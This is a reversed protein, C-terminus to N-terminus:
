QPRERLLQAVFSLTESNMLAGYEAIVAEITTGPPLSSVWQTLIDQYRHTTDTDGFVFQSISDISAGFTQLRPTQITVNREELSFVKVRQRPVERVVYASHTAIIAISKTATVLATLVDMFDSIFKPHLHTEPEDFLLACGTEINAAAQAAFRLMATEGSSLARLTKSDPEIMVPSAKWDVRQVLLLKRQENMTAARSLPFYLQEEVQKADLDEHAEKLRLFIWDWIGLPRLSRELLRFRGAPQFPASPFFQIRGDDRLCDILSTTLSDRDQARHATM